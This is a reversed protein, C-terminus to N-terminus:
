KESADILTEWFKGPAKYLTDAFLALLDIM